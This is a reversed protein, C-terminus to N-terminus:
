IVTVLSSSGWSPCVFSRDGTITSKSTSLAPQKGTQAAFCKQFTQWEKAYLSVSTSKDFLNFFKADTGVNANLASGATICGNVSAGAGGKTNGPPIKISGAANGAANLNLLVTSRSDLNVFVTAKATGGLASLGLDIRPTLQATAVSTSAVNGTVALKLPANGPIFIGTSKTGPAPPYVVKAGSVAYSLDVKLNVGVGVDATAQGFIKFSPGVTLLGPFELTPLLAQYLTLKGSDARGAANGVLNISGRIDADLGVFAGFQTLKPPVITGVAAVGLSIDAHANVDANARISADFAPPGACSLSQSFLPYNKSIDIPPVNTTVSKDFNNFQM